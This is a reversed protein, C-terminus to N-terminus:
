NRAVQEHPNARPKIGWATIEFNHFNETNATVYVHIDKLAMYSGTTTDILLQGIHNSCHVNFMFYKDGPLFAAQRMGRLDGRKVKLVSKSGIALEQPQGRQTIVTVGKLPLIDKEYDGTSFSYFVTENRDPQIMDDSINRTNSGGVESTIAGDFKMLQLNGEANPVSFYVRSNEGLFYSSSRFPKLVLQLSGTAVEYKWLEGKESHLPHIKTPGSEYYEDKILYLAKSDKSWQFHNDRFFSVGVPITKEYITRVPIVDRVDGTEGSIIKMRGDMVIAMQKGDPSVLFNKIRSHLITPAQHDIQDSYKLDDGVSYFFHGNAVAPFKTPRFDVIGSPVLFGTSMGLQYVAYNLPVTLVLLAIYTLRQRGSIKQRLLYVAAFGLFLATNTILLAAPLYGFAPDPGFRLVGVMGGIGVAALVVWPSTIPMIRISAGLVHGFYGSALLAVPFVWFLYSSAFLLWLVSIAALVSALIAGQANLKANFIGLRSLVYWLIPVAIAVGCIPILFTIM